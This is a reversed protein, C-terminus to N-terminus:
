LYNALKSDIETNDLIMQNAFYEVVVSIFDINDVDYALDLVMRFVINSKCIILLSTLLSRLM